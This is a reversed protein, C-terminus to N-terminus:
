NIANRSHLRVPTRMDMICVPQPCGACTTPESIRRNSKFNKKASFYTQLRLGISLYLGFILLFWSSSSTIITFISLVIFFTGLIFLGKIAWKRYLLHYNLKIFDEQTLKTTVQIM